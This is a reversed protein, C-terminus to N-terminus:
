DSILGELKIIVEELSEDIDDESPFRSYARNELRSLLLHLAEHKADAKIDKHPKDKDGLNSNLKVTAVMNRQTVLISAFGDIPEYKFYVQYGTLGFRQQYQKFYKQFNRFDKNM